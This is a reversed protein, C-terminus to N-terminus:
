FPNQFVWIKEGGYFVVQGGQIQVQSGRPNQPTQYVNRQGSSFSLQVLGEKDIFFLSNEFFALKADSGYPLSRLYNGQNDFVTVSSAERLFLLNQYERVEKVQIDDRGLVLSLPQNQVVAQRRFDIKKLSLDTEDFVWLTNNNGMTASKAFGVQSADFRNNVIPNLFRDLIVYEQLDESFSFINVTRDADLQSLRARRTPSFHNVTRGTQDIQYIGGSRDAYYIQGRNDLALQELGKVQIEAMPVWEVTQQGFSYSTFFFYLLISLHNKM